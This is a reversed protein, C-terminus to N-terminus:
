PLYRDVFEDADRMVGYMFKSYFDEFSIDSAANVWKKYLLNRLLASHSRTDKAKITEGTPELIEIKVSKFNYERNFTGDENDHETVKTINGSLSVHYNSGMEISQPIEAKGSLKIYHSNIEM